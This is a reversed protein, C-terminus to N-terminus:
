ILEINTTIHVLHCKFKTNEIHEVFNNETFGAYIKKNKNFKINLAYSNSKNEELCKIASSCSRQETCKLAM